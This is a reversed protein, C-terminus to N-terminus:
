FNRRLHVARFHQNAEVIKREIDRSGDNSGDDVLIVEWSLGLALLNEVLEEALQALSDRENYIAIVVSLEVEYVGSERTLMGDGFPRESIPTSAVRM